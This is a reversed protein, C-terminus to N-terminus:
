LKVNEKVVKCISEKDFGYASILEDPSGSTGFKDDIGLRIVKVPYNESLFECVASGLGGIINHDEVTIVLGTKRASSVILEEDLPKISAINILDIDLGEKELAEATDLAIHTTFGTSILTAKDGKCLQVGKGIKFNYNDNFIVPSDGRCLRLYCPGNYKVIEEIVKRTEVADCPSFVLINPISRMIAVDEIAQHTAGDAGASIGANTGVIKVNLKPYAISASVQDCARKTAFVGFTASFPIKGMTALGAAACMMNSEAIGFNFFRNPFKEAFKITKTAKALDADLVVISNNESGLEVLKIGFADRTSIKDKDTSLINRINDPIM